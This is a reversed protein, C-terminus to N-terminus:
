VVGARVAEAGDQKIEDLFERLRAVGKEATRVSEEDSFNIYTRWKGSSVFGLAELDKRLREMEEPYDPNLFERQITLHPMTELTNSYIVSRFGEFVPSWARICMARGWTISWDKSQEAHEILDKWFHHVHGEQASLFDAKTLKPGSASSSSTKNDRATETQGVIRPVLASINEGRYQRIEVGLVEVTNMKENLFEIIRRLERPISDAAFLLRVNGQRLNNEVTDWYREVISAPDSEDGGAVSFTAIYEDLAEAGGEYRATAM